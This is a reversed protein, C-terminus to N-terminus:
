RSCISLPVGSASGRKPVVFMSSCFGPCPDPVPEIARKELMSRVEADLAEFREGGDGYSPFAIPGTLTPAETFAIQYGHRVVETVWADSGLRDWEPWARHLCGGVPVSDSAVARPSRLQSPSVGENLVFPRRPQLLRPPSPPPQGALSLVVNRGAVHQGHPLPLPERCQPLWRLPLPRRPAPLRSQPCM